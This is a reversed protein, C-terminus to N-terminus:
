ERTEGSQYVAYGNKGQRKAQYLALDANQYLTEFDVGAEPSLAVGVSASIACSGASAVVERHLAAVLEGAKREGEERSQVPLFAVLEDGGIRGLIGGELQDRIAKAFDALVADGMAHGKRDNVQKFDDIDLIFFAFPEEPHEALLRRIHDRTAAQNYLGTLSDRQTQRYLFLERQKEAEINQRYVLMHISGDELRFIRATIRMWYYNRGDNSILFEYRLSETGERYARLVNSTQFTDIYGQRYEPKIQQQAILQLAQDFPTNRPVGLSEFYRETAESAARNHTIDLEYIDEYLQETVTQFISRRAKEKEATLRMLEANYKKMIKTITLLVLAIVVAVICVGGFFQLTLRRDLEATDKEVVLHWKLSPVYRSIVYGKGRESSFWLTQAEEGTDLIQDRLQPYDCIEFLNVSQYGTQRTSIEVTGSEDTLWARIGFQEEYSGLLEQLDEVRFGVGVVGLTGGSGRVKCNIFVTIVDGAAQDNDINLSFEEGSELFAYYWDNEPDGKTLVRDLGNYHYYRGTAASVLFVSDYAYETHYAGLYDQLGQLFAGDELHQPEMGLVEKLLSDNAMTLSVNLPKMLNSEIQHCIGESTLSSINEVDRHFIGHNSQYSIVSTIIFGVLIVTCVLLNTRALFNKKM